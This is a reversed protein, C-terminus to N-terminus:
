FIGSWINEANLVLVGILVSIVVILVTILAGAIIWRM